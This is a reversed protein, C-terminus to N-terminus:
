EEEELYEEIDEEDSDDPEIEDSEVDEEDDEALLEQMSSVKRPSHNITVPKSYVVQGFCNADDPYTIYVTGVAGSIDEPSVKNLDIGANKIFSLFTNMFSTEEPVCQLAYYEKGSEARLTYSIRWCATNQKSTFFDIKDIDTSYKGSPINENSGKKLPYVYNKTTITTPIDTYYSSLKRSKKKATSM